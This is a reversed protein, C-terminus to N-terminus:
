RTSCSGGTTVFCVSRHAAIAFAQFTPSSSTLCTTSAPSVVVYVIFGLLAAYAAARGGYAAFLGSRRVLAEIVQAGSSKRGRCGSCCVSVLAFGSAIWFTINPDIGFLVRNDLRM